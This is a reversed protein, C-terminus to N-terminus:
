KQDLVDDKVVFRKIFPGLLINLIRLRSPPLERHWSRDQRIRNVHSYRVSNGHINHYTQDNIMDLFNERIHINFKKNIYHIYQMPNKCFLDYSIHVTDLGSRKVFFHTSVNVVVWIFAAKVFHQPKLKLALVRPKDKNSYSNVYGRGDRVLHIVAIKQNGFQQVLKLLRRPDKSSDLLYSVKGNNQRITKEVTNFFVVDDDIDLPLWCRDKFPKFINWLVKLSNGLSTHRNISIDRKLRRHFDSWFPCEDFRKGCSCDKAHVAYLKEDPTDYRYSDYFYVEGLSVVEDASSVIMDLLTSGSHGGGAIYLIRADM